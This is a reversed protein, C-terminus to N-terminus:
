LIPMMWCKVGCQCQCNSHDVSLYLLWVVDGLLLCLDFLVNFFFTTYIISVTYHHCAQTDNSLGDGKAGFDGVVIVRKSSPRIRAPASQPLQLLSDFGHVCVFCACILVRITTTGKPCFGFRLNNM